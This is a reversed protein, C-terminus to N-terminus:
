REVTNEDRSKARVMKEVFHSGELKCGEITDTKHRSSSLLPHQVSNQVRPNIDCKQLLGLNGCVTLHLLQRAKKITVEDDEQRSCKSLASSRRYHNALLSANCDAGFPLSVPISPHASYFHQVASLKVLKHRHICRIVRSLSPVIEFIKALIEVCRTSRNKSAIKITHQGLPIARLPQFRVDTPHFQSFQEAVKVQHISLVVLFCDVWRVRMPLSIAM